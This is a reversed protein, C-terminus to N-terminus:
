NYSLFWILIFQIGCNCIQFTKKNLSHSSERAHEALTHATQYRRLTCFFFYCYMSGFIGMLIYSAIYGYGKNALCDNSIENEEDTKPQKECVVENGGVVQGLMVIVLTVFKYGTYSVLEFFDPNGFNFCMFMGKQCLSEFLWLFLSKSFVTGIIESKFNSSQGQHYGTILIFTVFSM